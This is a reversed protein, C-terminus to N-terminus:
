SRVFAADRATPFTGVAAGTPCMVDHGPQGQDSEPCALHAHDLEGRAKGPGRLLHGLEHTLNQLQRGHDNDADLLIVGPFSCAGSETVVGPCARTLEAHDLLTLTYGEPAAVGVTAWSAAADARLADTGETEVFTADYSCGALVMAVWGWHTMRLMFPQRRPFQLHFITRARPLPGPPVAEGGGSGPRCAVALATAEAIM